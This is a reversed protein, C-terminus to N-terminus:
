GAVGWCWGVPEGRGEEGEEEVGRGGEEKGLGGGAGDGVGTLGGVGGGGKGGLSVGGGGGAEGECGMVWWAVGSEGGVVQGVGVGVVCIVEWAVPRRRRWGGEVTREVESGRKEDQRPRGGDGEEGGDVGWGM